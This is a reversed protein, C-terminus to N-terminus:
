KELSRKVRRWHWPEIFDLSWIGKGHQKAFDESEVYKQSYKRYALAWGNKVMMGNLEVSGVYCEGIVRKYKDNGLSECKVELDGILAELEYKAQIGCYVPIGGRGCLQGIEPADIGELRIKQDEIEITDGDIVRVKGKIVEAADAFQCSMCNLLSIIILYPYTCKNM